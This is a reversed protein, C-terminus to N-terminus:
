DATTDVETFSLGQFGVSQIVRLLLVGTINAANSSKQSYFNVHFYISGNTQANAGTESTNEWIVMPDGHHHELKSNWLRKARIMTRSGGAETATYERAGNQQRAEEYSNSLNTSNNDIYTIMHVPNTTENTYTLYIAGGFIMYTTYLAAMRDWGRPQNTSNAGFPDTCSQLPFVYGNSTAGPAIPLTLTSMLRTSLRKPPNVIANDKTFYPTKRRRTYTKRPRTTRRTMTRKRYRRTYTTKKRRAYVM